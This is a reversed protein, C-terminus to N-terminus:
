AVAERVLSVFLEPPGFGGAKTVLPLAARGPLRLRGSALGPRPAGDLDLREAGLARYLAVATEGGTVLVVDYREAELRERASAVLENVARARDMPADPTALVTLGAERAVEIQRRTAPHLSGAVILWRDGAPVEIPPALLDLRRALAHALGAAGVMLPARPQALAADALADLDEDTEADGVVVTGGLRGLQESLATRPGRVKDLSIWALPRELQPRLLDVVSSSGTTAPFDPDAAMPTEAVPVGAVVLVRDVVVRREAPMAPCVLASTQGGARMLADMEPGVRGRMTSDIKKFMTGKLRGTAARVRRGAESAELSRSETDIARVRASPASAPWVTVPVAGGGAFLAGTDAAGTLDDAVITLPLFARPTTM